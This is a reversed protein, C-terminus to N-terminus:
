VMSGLRELLSRWWPAEAPTDEVAEAPTRGAPTRTAEPKDGDSAGDSTGAAPGGAATHGEETATM